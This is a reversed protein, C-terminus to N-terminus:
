ARWSLQVVLSRESVGWAARVENGGARAVMHRFSEATLRRSVAHGVYPHDRLVVTGTTRELTVTVEGHTHQYRWLEQARDILREATISAFFASKFRGFGLEISRAIFQALVGEDAGIPGAWLADHWAIAHEVPVWEFPLVMTDLTALRTALPMREAVLGLGAEGWLDRAAERFGHIVSGRAHPATSPPPTTPM